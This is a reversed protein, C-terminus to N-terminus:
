LEKLKVTQGAKVVFEKRFYNIYVDVSTPNHVISADMSWNLRSCAQLYNFIEGNTAYWIDDKNGIYEAFKEIVDWNNDDDFEYSHGWLYFLKPSNSWWYPKEKIEVFQKALEMLRPNKHHCTTPLKLWDSPLDFKETSIVTRAYSIGCQKLIEVVSDNYDGNAYALGKIIQSFKQELEKRCTAVDNVAMASDVNALSLHRHGHVAVEMGSTSYLDLAEKLTMIGKEVGEYTESFRGSSINFTGKLGNKQMIQILRKDQRVGDDYSLTLAKNKFNPFRIYAKNM